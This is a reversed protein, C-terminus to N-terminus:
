HDLYGRTHTSRKSTIRNWGSKAMDAGKSGVKRGVGILPVAVSGLLNKLVMWNILCIIILGAIGAFYGKGFAVTFIVLDFVPVIVTQVLASLLSRGIGETVEWGSFYLLLILPLFIVGVHTLLRLGWLTLEAVIAVFQALLVAMFAWGQATQLSITLTEAPCILKGFAAALQLLIDFAFYSIAIIIMTKVFMTATGKADAKEGTSPSYMMKVGSVCLLVVLLVEVGKTVRLWSDYDESIDLPETLKLWMAGVRGHLDPVVGTTKWVSFYDTFKTWVKDSTRNPMTDDIHDVTKKTPSVAKKVADIITGIGIGGGGGGGGPAPPVVPVPQAAVVPLAVLLVLLVVTLEKKM